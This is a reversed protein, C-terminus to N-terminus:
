YNLQQIKQYKNFLNINLLHLNWVNSQNKRQYSQVLLHRSPLQYVSVTTSQTNQLFSYIELFADRYKFDTCFSRASM